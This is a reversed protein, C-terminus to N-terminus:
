VDYNRKLKKDIYDIDIYDLIYKISYLTIRSMSEHLSPTVFRCINAFSFINEM